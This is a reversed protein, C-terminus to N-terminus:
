KANTIRAIETSSPIANTPLGFKAIISTLESTCVLTEMLDKHPSGSVWTEQESRKGGCGKVPLMDMCQVVILSLYIVLIVYHMLTYPIHDHPVTRHLVILQGIALM